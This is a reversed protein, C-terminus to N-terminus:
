AECCGAPGPPCAARPASRGRFRQARVGRRRVCAPPSTIFMLSPDPAQRMMPPPSAPRVSRARSQRRLGHDQQALRREAELGRANKRLAAIAALRPSSSSKESCRASVSSAPSPSQSSVTASAIRAGRWRRDRFQDPEARREIAIAMASRTSPRSAACERRRMTWAPPSRLPRSIIRAKIARPARSVM